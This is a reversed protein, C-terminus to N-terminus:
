GGNEEVESVLVAIIVIRHFNTYYPWCSILTVMESSQPSAYAQLAADGEAEVGTYPVILKKQVQYDFSKENTFLTVQDGLSLQDLDRFVEGLMNNHGTLVINQGEGPNGSTNYHGVANAIPDWTFRISGSITNSKSPYIDEVRSNLDIAPIAIRIVPLPPPTATPIPTPTLTPLPTAPPLSFVPTSAILLYNAQEVIKEDMKERTFHAALTCALVIGISLLLKGIVEFIIPRSLIRRAMDM